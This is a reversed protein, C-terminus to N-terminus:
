ARANLEFIGTTGRGLQKNNKPVRLPGRIAQAVDPDKILLLPDDMDRAGPAVLASPSVRQEVGQREVAEEPYHPQLAPWISMDIYEPSPLSAVAM